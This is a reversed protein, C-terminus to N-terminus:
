KIYYLYKLYFTLLIYKATQKYLTALPINTQDITM